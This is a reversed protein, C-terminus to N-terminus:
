IRDFKLYILKPGALHISKAALLYQLVGYFECQGNWHIITTGQGGLTMVTTM